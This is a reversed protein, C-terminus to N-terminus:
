AGIRELREREEAPMAASWAAEQGPEPLVQGFEVMQRPVIESLYVWVERRPAGAADAVAQALGTILRDKDEVTRGARIHGHVHVQDGVLPKGGVFYNGAVVDTFIVQAFYGPAGTVTHHVRTIAAAIDGKHAASLRGQPATVTYTPM